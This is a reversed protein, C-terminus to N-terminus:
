HASQLRLTSYFAQLGTLRPLYLTPLGAVSSTEAPQRPEGRRTEGRATELWNGLDPAPAEVKRKGASVNVTFIRGGRRRGEKEEEKCLMREGRDQLERANREKEVDVAELSEVVMKVAVRRREWTQVARQRPLRAEDTPAAEEPREWHLALLWSM